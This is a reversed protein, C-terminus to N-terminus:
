ETGTRIRLLTKVLRLITLPSYPERVYSNAGAALVTAIDVRGAQGTLMVIPMQALIPDPESRLTRCVDLGEHYSELNLDLLVLDPRSRRVMEVAEAASAAEMIQYHSALPRKLLDRIKPEHEVILITDMIKGRAPLLPIYRGERSV